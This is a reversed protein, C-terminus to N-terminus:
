QPPNYGGLMRITVSRSKRSEAIKRALQPDDAVFAAVQRRFADDAMKDTKDFEYVTGGKDVLLSLKGRANMGGNGALFYGDSSFAYVTIDGASEIKWCWGYDPHYVITRVRDARTRQWMQVSDVEAGSFVEIEKARHTLANEIVVLRGNKKHPTGIRNSDSVEIVRGTKLYVRGCVRQVVKTASADPAATALAAILILLCSLPRIAYLKM